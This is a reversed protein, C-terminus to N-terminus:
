RCLLLGLDRVQQGFSRFGVTKPSIHPSGVTDSLYNVPRKPHAIMTIVDSPDQTLRAPTPLLRDLPRRLAVLLGNLVPVLPAPRSEFFLWPPLVSSRRPLRLPSKATASPPVYRPAVRCSARAAPGASARDGSREDTADGRIASQEQLHTWGGVIGSRHHAEQPDEQALDLPRDEEDPIARRDMASVLDFLKPLLPAALRQCRSCSGPYAGSRLGSSPM